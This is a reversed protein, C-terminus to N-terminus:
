LVYINFEHIWIHEKAYVYIHMKHMCMNIQTFIFIKFFMFIPNINMYNWKTYVYIDNQAYM